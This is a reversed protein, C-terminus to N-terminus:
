GAKFVKMLHPVLQKKRSLVGDLRYLNQDQQPYGMIYPLENPGATLLLSTEMVIDTVLLAALEYGKEDRITKLENQLEVHRQYFSHFNVVEVQGLGLLHDGVTYEKFDTLLLERAPAGSAMPSGSAFLEGGFLQHDLGSLSELWPVLQRDIETTTPSKLIVTDSLLGALMLGAIKPQPDIGAQQFLTAVLSCTSGLPQNIFRIPTDTHFNGLRHHDVVELIEVKEAGPVAQSLENHDVLMLKVPSSKILHSKTAIGWVREDPSVVIAGPNKSHLLKLRLDDLLDNPSVRLFDDDVLEGVPTAMRTLWVSNATDYPSILISVGRERAEELYETSIESKGSVILLRVGADIAMKQIGSRDGTILITKEPVIEEVWRSFSAECRAGVYLNFNEVQDPERLHHGTASLCQQISALSARVRRLKDPESPVLFVETATKLLLMGKPHFEDDVVPLMRIHHKHYLEIAKSMPASEHITVVEETVVDKIRPHVDSLREPVPMNLRELVFETQQNLNGARAPQINEVGQLRRLESYAIASCISDTDPNRHGVVYVRANNKM